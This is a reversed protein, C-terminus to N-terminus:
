SDGSGHSAHTAGQSELVVEAEGRLVLRGDHANLTLALVFRSQNAASSRDQIRARCTLEDHVQTMGVFRVAFSRLERPNALSSLFRGALAMSLMGHGIVDPLGAQERAFDSDTHVPNHDGSAGCYLALMHRTIPALTLPPLEDGALCTNLPYPM